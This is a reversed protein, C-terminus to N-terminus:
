KLIYSINVVQINLHKIQGHLANLGQKLSEEM